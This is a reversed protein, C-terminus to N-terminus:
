VEVFVFQPYSAVKVVYKKWPGTHTPGVEMEVPWRVKKGERAMLDISLTHIDDPSANATYIASKNHNPVRYYTKM